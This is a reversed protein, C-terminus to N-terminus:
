LLQFRNKGGGFTTPLPNVKEGTVVDSFGSKPFFFGSGPFCVGGKAFIAFISIRRKPIRGRISGRGQGVRGYRGVGAWGAWRPDHGNIINIPDCVSTTSLRDVQAQTAVLSPSIWATVGRQLTNRRPTNCLAGGLPHAFPHSNTASKM